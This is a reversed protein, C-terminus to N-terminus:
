AHIQEKKENLSLILKKNFGTLPEIHIHIDGNTMKSQFGEGICFRHTRDNKHVVKELRFYVLDNTTETPRLYYEDRKASKNGSELLNIFLSFDGQADSYFARGACFKKNTNKDYWWLYFMESRKTTQVQIQAMQLTQM